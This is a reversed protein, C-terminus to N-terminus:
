LVINELFDDGVGKRREFELISGYRQDSVGIFLTDGGGPTFSIGAIEGFFDIVQSQFADTGLPGGDTDSTYSSAAAVLQKQNEEDDDIQSFDDSSSSTVSSKDDSRWREQTFRKTIENNYFSTKSLHSSTGNFDYIHVFDCPESAALFSGDDSFRLSRIAGVIAPLTVLSKSPNRIDYIRTTLDQNGTAIFDVARRGPVLLRSILTDNAAWPFSFEHTVQLRNLNLLRVMNDNSSVVGTLEGSRNSGLEAHNTIGMPDTTLVGGKVDSGFLNGGADGEAEYEGVRRCVYEGNFGGMFVMSACASITSTRFGDSKLISTSTHTISNWQRISEHHSYYVSNKDTSWLLNRLQFHYESCKYKHKTLTYRFDYFDGDTYGDHLDNYIESHPTSCNRYNRYNTIRQDRFSARTTPHFEVWRIGQLDCDDSIDKRTIPTELPLPEDDYDDM